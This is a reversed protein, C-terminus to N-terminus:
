TQEAKRRLKAIIEKTKREEDPGLKSAKLYNELEDAAQKYRKLHNGYLQSLEKHIEPIRATTAKKAKVLFVEAQEFDGLSMQVKGMMLLVQVANPAIKLAEELSSKAAKNYEPGANHLSSGLLFMVTASKQNVEAARIFVAAADMYQKRAYLESGFRMLAKFYNPFIRLANQLERFGGSPDEKKFLDEAATFATEAEKPVNQAFIVSLEADRLGGRKPRLYFDRQEFGVGQGGRINSTFVEIRQEQDELDYRFALVRITYTGDGLGTFQYRGTADTRTRGGNLILRDFQDLLEVDIDSLANRQKDYITGTITTQGYAAAMLVPVILLARFILTASFFPSYRKQTPKM